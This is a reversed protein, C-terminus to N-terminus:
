PAIKRLVRLSVFVALAALALVIGTEVLQLPWFHSAPHFENWRGVIGEGELCRHYDVVDHNQRQCTEWRWPMRHGDAHLWGDRAPYSNPLVPWNQEHLWQRSETPWLYPRLESLGALVGATVLAAVSMSLFVRRLVLGVLSGVAVGLLLYAVLVPGLAPFTDTDYWPMIDRSTVRVFRLLGVIVVGVVAAVAGFVALRVTLWRAPTQSQTWALRFTGSELERAVLPGAAVVAALVAATILWLGYENSLLRYWSAANQYGFLETGCHTPGTWAEGIPKLCDDRDAAMRQWLYLGFTVVVALLLLLGVARLLGRHVLAAARLSPRFGDAAPGGAPAAPGSTRPARQTTSVDPASM